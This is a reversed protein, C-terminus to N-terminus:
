YGSLLNDRLATYSEITKTFLIINDSPYGYVMLVTGSSDRLVRMPNRVSDLSEFQLKENISNNPLQMAYALDTYLTREGPIMASELNKRDEFSFVFYPVSTKKDTTTIIGYMYDFVNSIAVTDLFRQGVLPALNKFLVIEDNKHILIEAFPVTSSFSKTRFNELDSEAPIEIGYTQDIRIFNKEKTPATIGTDKKIFFKDPLAIVIIAVAAFICGVIVLLNIKRKNLSNKQMKALLLAEEGPVESSGVIGQASSVSDKQMTHLIPSNSNDEM